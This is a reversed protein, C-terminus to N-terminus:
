GTIRYRGEADPCVRVYRYDVRDGWDIPAEALRCRERAYYSAAYRSNRSRRDYRGERYPITDAYSFYYGRADCKATSRGVGAGVAGGVVAGLVAGETRVDGAAVNSGLAAGALAGILGGAVTRSRKEDLCNSDVYSADVGYRDAGWRGEDWAPAPGNLRAYAGYGYRADYSARAREYDDRQREYARRAARYDLRQSRYEARDQRYRDLDRRYQETPAYPGDYAPQAYQAFAPVASTLALAGVLGLTVSTKM